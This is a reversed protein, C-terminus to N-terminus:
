RTRETAARRHDLASWPRVEARPQSSAEPEDPVELSV